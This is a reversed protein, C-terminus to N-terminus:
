RSRRVLGKVEALTIARTAFALAIYTLGGAAAVLAVTIEKGGHASGLASLVTEVGGQLWPRAFSAFAIENASDIVAKQHVVFPAPRDIFDSQSKLDSRLAAVPNPASADCAHDPFRKIVAVAEVKPFGAVAEGAAAM